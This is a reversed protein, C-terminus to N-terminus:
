SAIKVKSKQSKVEEIKVLGGKPGPVPGDLLVLNHGRDIKVIHMRKTTQDGGMRGGMRKGKRVHQPFSSGISGPARLTNKTGHTKPSGRFGHRKVVGQFGKGKSIGTVHVLDKESFISVDIADGRTYPSPVEGAVHFERLWRINGLNKVHGAVPKSLAKKIGAGLQVASYGDKDLSKVQTVVNPPCVVLTVPIANGENDYIQGMGLKTGLIAKM